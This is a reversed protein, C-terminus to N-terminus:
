FDGNLLNAVTERSIVHRSCRRGRKAQLPHFRFGEAFGLPRGNEAVAMQEKMNSSQAICMIELSLCDPRSDEQVKDKWRRLLFIAASWAPICVAQCCTATGCCAVCFLM